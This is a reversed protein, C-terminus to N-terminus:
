EAGAALRGNAKALRGEKATLIPSQWMGGAGGGEKGEVPHSTAAFMTPHHNIYVTEWRGAPAEYSEHMIGLDPFEKTAKAFWRVGDMHVPSAAFAHVDAQTRFYMINLLHPSTGHADAELYATSGLFGNHRANAEDSLNKFM